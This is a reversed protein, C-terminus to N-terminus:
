RASVGKTVWRKQEKDYYMSSENGLKARVPGSPPTEAGGKGWLRGLWSGGSVSKPSEKPKETEEVAAQVVPNEKAPPPAYNSTPTGAKPAPPPAAQKKKHSSNGLGLDDDDEELDANHNVQPTYAAPPTPAASAYASVAPTIFNAMPNIFSGENSEDEAASDQQNTDDFTYSQGWTPIEVAPHQEAADDNRDATKQISPQEAMPVPAPSTGHTTLEDTAQTSVQSLASLRHEQGRYAMASTPRQQTVPKPAPQPRYSMASGSRLIPPPPFSSTAPIDFSSMARSPLAPTSEPTIASFHSFPGIGASGSSAKKTHGSSKPEANEGEDGAIFKTITGEFWSGLNELKPKPLGKASSVNFEEGNIRSLLNQLQAKIRQTAQDPVKRLRLSAIIAECYRRTV